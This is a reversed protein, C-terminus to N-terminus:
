APRALSACLALSHVIFQSFMQMCTSSISQAGGHGRQLNSLPPVRSPSQEKEKEKEKEKGTSRRTAGEEDGVLDEVVYAQM